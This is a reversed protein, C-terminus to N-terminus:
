PHSREHDPARGRVAEFFGRMLDPAKGGPEVEIGSSVDVVDPRFRAMADGVSEPTLGGALVFLLGPPLVGRVEEAPLALRAGAGGVVGTRYGELLLGDAVTAYLEVARRVDELTAVRAAKWVQWPGASAISRVREPSEEGHLQVVGAGLTTALRVATDAAEDVLVAVPQASLGAVIESAVDSAVTRGFGQSMVVGVYDAGLEDALLADERRQLGCIKVSPM